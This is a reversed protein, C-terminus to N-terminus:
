EDGYRGFLRQGGGRCCILPNGLTLAMEQGANRQCDLINKQGFTDAGGAAGANEFVKDGGVAGGGPLLKAVM